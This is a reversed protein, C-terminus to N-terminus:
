ALSVIRIFLTSRRQLVQISVYRLAMRTYAMYQLTQWFPAHMRGPTVWASSLALSPPPHGNQSDSFDDMWICVCSGKTLCNNFLIILSCRPREVRSEVASESYGNLVPLSLVRTLLVLGARTVWGAIARCALIAAQRNCNLDLIQVQTPNNQTHNSLESQYPVESVKDLKATLYKYIEPKNKTSDSLGTPM